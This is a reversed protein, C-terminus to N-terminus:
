KNTLQLFSQVSGTVSYNALTDQVKQSSVGEYAEQANITRHRLCKQIVKDSLGMDKLAQAYLHRLSHPNMAEDRGRPIKMGLHSELRNLANNYSKNFQSISYPAGVYSEGTRRDIGTSVFLFPHDHGRQKEYTAMLESRYSLYLPYLSAFMAQASPHLWFIDAHYSKKDVALKKWGAKLSKTNLKDHRPRLGRERLYHDRTKGREGILNTQAVRPHYLRAQCEFENIPTVDNFWLHFPESKRLGGFLLLLTIMKATIDEREFPTTALPDKIFGYELLPAVLEIPFSKTESDSNFYSTPDDEFEYGFTSRSQSVNEAATSPDKVHEMFSRSIVKKATKLLSLTLKEKSKIPAKSTSLGKSELEEEIVWDIFSSLSGRLRKAKTIGTPAWYLGTPDIKTDVDVTGNELSSMFKRLQTRRDANTNRCATCYDYFLGVARATDRMWTESRSPYALFYDVLSWMITYGDEGELYLVPFATAPVVAVKQKVVFHYRGQASFDKM